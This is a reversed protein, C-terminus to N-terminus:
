RRALWCVFDRITALSELSGELAVLLPSQDSLAAHPHRLWNSVVAADRFLGMLGMHIELLIAVRDKRDRGRLSTLGTLIARVEPIESTEFGMLTALEAESLSWAERIGILFKVPGDIRSEVGETSSQLSTGNREPQLPVLRLDPTGQRFAGTLGKQRGEALKEDPVSQRVLAMSRRRGEHDAQDASLTM